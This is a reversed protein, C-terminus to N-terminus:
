LLDRIDEYQVVRVARELGEIQCYVRGHDSFVRKLKPKTKSRKLERLRFMLDERKKTLFERLFLGDPKLEKFKAFLKYRIEPKPLELAIKDMDENLPYGRISQLEQRPIHLKETLVNLVAEFDFGATQDRPAFTSGIVNLVLKCNLSRQELDDLKLEMELVKESNVSSARTELSDMRNEVESIRQGMSDNSAELAEMRSIMSNLKQTCDKSFDKAEKADSKVVKLDSSMASVTAILVDLKDNPKATKASKKQSRLNGRKSKPPCKFDKLDKVLEDIKNETGVDPGSPTVDDDSSECHDSVLAVPTTLTSDETSSNKKSQKVPTRQTSM